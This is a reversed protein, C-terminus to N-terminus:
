LTEDEISLLLCSGDVVSPYLWYRLGYDFINKEGSATPSAHGPDVFTPQHQDLVVVASGVVVTVVAVVLLPLAVVASM